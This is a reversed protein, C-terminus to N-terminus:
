DGQRTSFGRQLLQVDITEVDGDDNLDALARINANCAPKNQICAIMNTWDSVGLTNDRNLDGVIVSVTSTVNDEKGNTLSIIGPLRRYLSNDMSLKVTYSGSGITNGLNIPGEFAFTQPNYHLSAGITSVDNTGFKLMENNTDLVNVRVIRSSNKPQPNDENSALKQGIGPIKVSLKLGTSGQPINDKPQPICKGGTCTNSRCQKNETCVCGEARYNSADCVNSPKNTPTPTLTPAANDDTAPLQYVSYKINEHSCEGLKPRQALQMTSTIAHCAGVECADAPNATFKVECYKSIQDRIIYGASKTSAPHCMKTKTTNAPYPTAILNGCIGSSCQTATDCVCYDDRGSDKACDRVTSVIKYSGMIGSANEVPVFTGVDKATVKVEKLSIKAEGEALAKFTFTHIKISNGTVPTSLPNIYTPSYTNSTTTKDLVKLASPVAGETFQLKSNDYTLTYSLGGVDYTGANMVLDVTFTDGIKIDDKSGPTFGFNVSALTQAGQRIDQERLVQSIIFPLALALVVVLGAMIKPNKRFLSKIKNM